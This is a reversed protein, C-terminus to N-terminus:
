RRLMGVAERVFAQQFAALLALYLGVGLTIELALEVGPSLGSFGTPVAFLAVSMALAPLVPAALNWLYSQACPGVLPKILLLYAMPFFAVQVALLGLAVGVTGWLSVGVCVAAIQGAMVILNWRFEMDARGKALLLAGVPNCVSRFLAVLALVEVIHVSPEWKPQFITGITSHMVAALGLLLPANVTLLLRCVLLFGERLKENENQLRAFVPFAVRTVVPNVRTLPQMTLNYAFNYHGLLVAGLLRGLVLQDVRSVFYNVVGSATQYAGFSAFGRLDESRFHWTPRWVSLGAKLLLLTRLLTAALLSWVLAMVGAGQLAFLLAVMFGWAQSLIEVTALARFRMKKQLLAAFQQGPPGILLTLACLPLITNMEPAHFFLACLPAAALAGVFGVAGAAISLVYLSSLQHPTADQRFIVASGIGLELVTQMFATVLIAMAMLGFEEPGLLRALVYFQGIQLTATAFASVGTWRVGAGM